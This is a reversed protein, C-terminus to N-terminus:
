KMYKEPPNIASRTKNTKKPSYEEIKSHFENYDDQILINSTNNNNTLAYNMNNMSTNIISNKQTNKQNILSLNPSEEKQIEREFNDM